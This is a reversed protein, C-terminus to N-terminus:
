WGPTTDNAPNDTLRFYSHDAASMVYIEYSGDRLSVFTLYKGDSSWSPFLDNFPNNTLRTETKTKIERLYLEASGNERNIYVIQQGDPSWSLGESGVYSGFSFPNVQGSELTLIFINLDWERDSLFAIKTGDPSWAPSFDRGPNETLRKLEEGNVDMLYLEANRDRWTVFAIQSGDPSWAPSSDDAPDYTLRVPDSGDANMRYIEPNGDRNSVFAIQKGDPSWFPAYDDGPTDTLRTLDSGDPNVAYIEYNGDRNTAFVIKGQLEPLEQSAMEPESPSEQADAIEPVPAHLEFNDFEFVGSVNEDAEVVVGAQGVKLRSDDAEGVFEGNIFFEFHPGEGIVVLGNARDSRITDTYTWDIITQWESNYLLGFWYQGDPTILFVYYNDETGRFILGGEAAGSAEVLEMDASVEFDTLSAAPMYEWTIFGQLATLEVRYKGELIDWKGQWWENEVWGTYWTFTNWSFDDLFIPPWVPTQVPEPEEIVPVQTPGVLPARTPQFVPAPTPEQRTALTEVPKRAILTEMPQRILPFWSVAAISILILGLCFTAALCGVLILPTNIKAQTPADSSPM